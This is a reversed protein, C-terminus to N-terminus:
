YGRLPSYLGMFHAGRLAGILFEADKEADEQNDTWLPFVDVINDYNPQSFWYYQGVRHPYDPESRTGFVSCSYSSHYKVEGLRLIKWGRNPIHGEYLPKHNGFFPPLIVLHYLWPKVKSAKGFIFSPSYPSIKDVM